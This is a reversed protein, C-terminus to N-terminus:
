DGFKLLFAIKISEVLKHLSFAILLASLKTIISHIFCGFWDVIM